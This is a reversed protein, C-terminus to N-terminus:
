PLPDLGAAAAEILDNKLAEAALADEEAAERARRAGAEAGHEYAKHENREEVTPFWAQCRPCGAIKQAEDPADIARVKRHYDKVVQRRTGHRVTKTSDKHLTRRMGPTTHM